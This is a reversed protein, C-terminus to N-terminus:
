GQPASLRQAPCKARHPLRPNSDAKPRGFWFTYMSAPCYISNPFFILLPDAERICPRLGNKFEADRPQLPLIKSRHPTENCTKAGFALYPNNNCSKRRITTKFLRTLLGLLAISLMTRCCRLVAVLFNKVIQWFKQGKLVLYTPIKM